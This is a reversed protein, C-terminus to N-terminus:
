GPRNHGIISAYLIRMKLEYYVHSSTLVVLTNFVYMHVRTRAYVRVNIFVCKCLCVNRARMRQCPRRHVCPNMCMLVACCVQVHLECVCVYAGIHTRGCVCWAEGFLGRGGCVCVVCVSYVSCM